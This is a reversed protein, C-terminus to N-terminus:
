AREVISWVASAYVFTGRVSRTADGTRIYGCPGCAAWRSLRRLTTVVAGFFVYKDRLSFTLELNGAATSRLRSGQALMEGVCVTLSDMARSVTPRM